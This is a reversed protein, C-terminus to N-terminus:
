YLHLADMLLSLIASSLQEEYPQPVGEAFLRRRSTRGCELRWGREDLRFPVPGRVTDITAARVRLLDQAAQAVAARLWAPEPDRVADVALPVVELVADIALRSVLDPSGAVISWPLDVDSAVAWAHDQPWWYHPTQDYTPLWYLADELRGRYVLYDRGPVRLRSGRRAAAPVPDPVPVARHNSDLRMAVDWGLGDWLAFMVVDPTATYSRLVDVLHEAQIKELTGCRPPEGRWPRGGPPCRSPLALHAFDSTASMPVGNLMAVDAWRVLTEEETYAPHLLRGYVPFGSPAIAVLRPEWFNALRETMWQIEAADVSWKVMQAEERNGPIECSM